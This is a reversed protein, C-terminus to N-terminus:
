ADLQSNSLVGAPRPLSRLFLPVGPIQPAPTIAKALPLTSPCRAATPTKCLTSFTGTKLGQSWSLQMWPQPARPVRQLPRLALRPSRPHLPYACKSLLGPLDGSATPRPRSERARKSLHLWCNRPPSARPLLSSRPSRRAPSNTVTQLSSCRLTYNGRHGRAALAPCAGRRRGGVGGGTRLQNQSPLHPAGRPGPWSLAPHPWDSGEGGPAKGSRASWKRQSGPEKLCWGRRKRQTRGPRPRPCDAAGTHREERALLWGRTAPPRHTGASWGLGPRARFVTLKPNDQAM